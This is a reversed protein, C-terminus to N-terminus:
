TYRFTNKSLNCPACDWPSLDQVAYLSPETFVLVSREIEQSRACCSWAGGTGVMMGTRGHHVADEFWSAFYVRRKVLQKQQINQWCHSFYNVCEINFFFFRQLSPLATMQLWMPLSLNNNSTSRMWLEPHLYGQLITLLVLWHLLVIIVVWM